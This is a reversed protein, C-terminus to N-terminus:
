AARRVQLGPLSRTSSIWWRRHMRSFPRVIRRARRNSSLASLSTFFDSFSSSLSTGTSPFLTQIQTLANVQADASSQTSTQQQIRLTLLEDQVSTIGDINVGNGISIGDEETPSAETLTLSERSYGVTNVNAINNNTVALNDEQALLAQTAISLSANLSSM